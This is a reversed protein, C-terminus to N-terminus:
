FAGFGWLALFLVLMAAAGAGSAAILRWNMRGALQGRLAAMRANLAALDRWGTRASGSAAQPEAQPTETTNDIPETSKVPESAIETARLDITTPPRRRKGGPPGSPRKEDAM